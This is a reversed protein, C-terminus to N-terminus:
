LQLTEGGFLCRRLPVESSAGGFLSLGRAVEGVLSSPPTTGKDSLYSRIKDESEREAAHGRVVPM